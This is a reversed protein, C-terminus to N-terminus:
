KKEFEIVRQSEPVAWTMRSGDIKVNLKVSEGANAFSIYEDTDTFSITNNKYEYTYERTYSDEVTMAFVNKEVKIEVKYEGLLGHVDVSMGDETKGGTVNWTGEIKSGSCSSLALVAILLLAALGVRRLGKKM